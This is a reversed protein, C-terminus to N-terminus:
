VCGARGKRLLIETHGARVLDPLRGVRVFGLKRYFTLAGRNDADASVFLWRRDVFTRSEAHAILARGIGQGAAEPRVALLAVFDGLLVGPQLVLVGLPSGSRTAAAVWVQRATAARRLFRSLDAGSYGLSRWPEIGAIWAGQRGALAVSASRIPLNARIAGNAGSV